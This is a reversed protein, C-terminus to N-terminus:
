PRDVLLPDPQADWFPVNEIGWGRDIDHVHVDRGHHNELVQTANSEQVHSRVQVWLLLGGKTIQEIIANRHHRSTTHALFGGLSAGAAGALLVAAFALALSGGTAVVAVYGGVGLAYIPVGVGAAALETQSHTSIFNGLPTSPDDELCTASFGTAALDGADRGDPRTALISIQQRDFGSLLLEDVVAEIERENQFVGVVEQASYLVPPVDILSLDSQHAPTTQSHSAQVM